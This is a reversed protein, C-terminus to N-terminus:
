QKDANKQREIAFLGNLIKAKYKEVIEDAYDEAYFAFAVKGRTENDYVKLWLAKLFDEDSM